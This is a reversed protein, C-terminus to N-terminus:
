FRLRATLQLSRMPNTAAPLGFTTSNVVTNWGTFSAHNLVNTGDVRVDLNFPNHLRFTRSMAGNLTFPDPGTISDRRATGWAGAAPASFANANLHYGAPASYIPTGTLDPRITGTFGTGPTAALFVPTEPLGTGASIQSMITWEKLIRGRWGSMLTRGGMGMGTTYQIQASLLQRQDFSSLERESRLDLWNQAVATAASPASTTTASSQGPSAASTAPTATVHGQAGIQADDDMAKAWTYDLSATFGSRLRRRLQIQGAERTSNGNSTRYVFGSQCAPCPNTAGIPYSNPLFQQMGHTGKTGLYTATMVLAWPIDRQVQLQWNQAYGVRLNPDIAFTDAAAGSCHAFGNALTLKCSGSNAESISTSFPAQEAMSEAASVYVSTDDYIGYGARVVLTSAPIPRWSIGIRPEFGRKDPRVLSTPYTAGTISGKPNSGVVPAVSTFGSSVDLNALRGHLETIPAGYDWRMGANLTFQPLMRWDDTFYLDYVSQRLYKDPNGYSLGSTDPIGLLFDALDSGTTTSAGSGVAQTAAGTFAFSGRPNQQGYENFEQRRFDGGFIFNHRRYNISVNGSLADTRNRNFASNADNLGAIGSSFTLGPPGYDAPDQDSGGIGANGSVNVRNEFEPRVDTRLRTLRYGLLVYTQHLYRHLWNVSTDIGLSNTTDVFGFINTSNARSSRFGFGGYFTDRRGITKNLRSLLADAHTDNIVEAQYNYSSSGALNPQPYLNLLAAAQSSVPINGTFPLGTAPNYITLPQGQANLLGSLNGGREAADPVLGTVISADASRTWQYNVFFNPGIPMLRPIRLPGGLTIGATIRSYFDKPTQQGTLSYPRADFVSNDVIASFGGNYLGRTGPRHNGFGPNLSYQSTAANNESGNILMGDAAKDQADDPPTPPAEPLNSDSPKSSKEGPKAEPEVTTRAKLPKSVQATALMQELGLLKLDWKAQPADPAVTVAADLTSFGGMEIEITWQGDALDPFEYLGQRDTVTTLRKSGQAVTVTAGPVPVGGSFVLGHYESAFAPISALLWLLACCLPINALRLRAM